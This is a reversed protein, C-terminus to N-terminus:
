KKLKQIDALVDPDIPKILFTNDPNVQLGPVSKAPANQEVQRNQKDTAYPVARTREKTLTVERKEQVNKIKGRTERPKAKRERRANERRFARRFSHQDAGNPLRGKGEFYKCITVMTFGEIALEQIEEYYEYIAQAYPSADARRGPSKTKRIEALIDLRTEDEM